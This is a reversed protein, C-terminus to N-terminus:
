IMPLYDNHLTMPIVCAFVAALRQAAPAPVARPPAHLAGLAAALELPAAAHGAVGADVGDLRM